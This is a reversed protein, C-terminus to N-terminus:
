ILFVNIVGQSNFVIRQVIDNHLLFNFQSASQLASIQHPSRSLGVNKCSKVSFHTSDPNFGKSEVSPNHKRGNAGTIPKSGPKTLDYVNNHSKRNSPNRIEHNKNGLIYGFGGRIKVKIWGSFMYGVDGNAYRCLCVTGGFGMDLEISGGPLAAFLVTANFEGSISPSLIAQMIASIGAGTGSIGNDEKLFTILAETFTILAETKLREVEARPDVVQGTYPNLHASMSDMPDAFFTVRERGLLDINDVADNGIMGYLNM